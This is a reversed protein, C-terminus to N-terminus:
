PLTRKLERAADGHRGAWILVFAYKRRVQIDQPRKELIREYEALSEDYRKVWSLMEALKLRVKQNDPQRGLLQRYLPEAKDYRKQGRYLDALLEQAGDPIDPAVKELEALADDPRGHWFLVQALEVRAEALGPKEQILRRYEALSEEFRKVHSLVRALEWRALWDPIEEVAEAARPPPVDPAPRRPSAGEGLCPLAMLGLLVVLGPLATGRLNAATKKM